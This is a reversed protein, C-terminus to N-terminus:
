QCEPVYLMSFTESNPFWPLQYTKGDFVEKLRGPEPYGLGATFGINRFEPAFKVDVWNLSNAPYTKWKRHIKGNLRDMGFANVELSNKCRNSLFLRPTAPVSDQGGTPLEEAGAPFGKGQAGRIIKMDFSTFPFAFLNPAVTPVDSSYFGALYTKGDKYRAKFAGDNLEATNPCYPDVALPLFTKAEKGWFREAMWYRCNRAFGRMGLPNHLTYGQLQIVPPASSESFSWTGAYGLSSPAAKSFEALVITTADPTGDVSWTTFKAVDVTLLDFYDNSQLPEYETTTSQGSATINTSTSVRVKQEYLRANLFVATIGTTESYNIRAKEFCYMPVVAHKSSIIVAPCDATQGGATIFMRGQGNLRAAEVIGVGLGELDRSAMKRRQLSGNYAGEKQAPSATKATSTANAPAKSAPSTIKKMPPLSNSSEGSFYEVGVWALAVFLLGLAIVNGTTLKLGTRAAPASATRSGAKASAKDSLTGEPVSQPKPKREETHVSASESGTDPAKKDAGASVTDGGAQQVTEDSQPTTVPELTLLARPSALVDGTSAGVMAITGAMPARMALTKDDATKLLMLVDGTEVKATASVKVDAITIPFYKLDRPSFVQKIGDNKL